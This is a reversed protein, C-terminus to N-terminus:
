KEEVKMAHDVKYVENFVKEIEEGAFDKVIIKKNRDLLFIKPTSPVRILQNYRSYEDATNIFDEMGKEKVGEWCTSTKEGGKTCVGIIKVDKTDKVNKYFKVVEPMIKKCHGCDPAWFILVTYEANIKHLEVPKGGEDYTTINPIVKGILIPKLDKVNQSMKTLSEEKVWPTKGKLYYKEALHVYIADHGVYKQQAYKNLYDALYYRYADQDHEVLSLIYDLAVIISDPDQNTLRSIYGSIKPHSTPMRILAPHKFDFNDFYHQKYYLFRNKKSEEETGTFEPLTIEKSSTILFALTSKPYRAVVKDQYASVEDNLKTFDAKIADESEGAAKARDLRAKLTDSVVKKTGLFALYEYFATNIESEKFELVTPKNYDFSLNVKKDGENVMFQAFINSPKVLLLYMGPKINDESTWTFKGKADKIILTDLVVQKEGMYSGVILTDNQYNKIDAKLTFSQASIDLSGIICVLLLVFRNM